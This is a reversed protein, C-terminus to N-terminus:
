HVKIENRKTVFVIPRTNTPIRQRQTGITADIPCNGSSICNFALLLRVVVDISVVVVVFKTFKIGIPCLLLVAVVVVVVVVVVVACVLSSLVFM